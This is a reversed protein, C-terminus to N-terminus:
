EWSIVYHSYEERVNFGRSTFYKIIENKYEWRVKEWEEGTFSAESPCFSSWCNKASNNIEEELKLILKQEDRLFTKYKNEKSESLLQQIERVHIM